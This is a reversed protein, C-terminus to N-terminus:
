TMVGTQSPSAGSRHMLDRLRIIGRRAHTKVSGLPIGLSTSIQEHTQGSYIALRLVRQQDDTLKDFAELAVGAEESLEPRDVQEGAAIADPLASPDPKSTVARLRDILRRRAIMSVFTTESAVGPDFRDASRWLSVFIEQVADEADARSRCMRRALSWVLGGYRDMTEHVASEDGMAVRRLLGSEIAETQATKSM